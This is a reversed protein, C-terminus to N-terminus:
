LVAGLDHVLDVQVRDVLCVAGLGDTGLDLINLLELLTQLALHVLGMAQLLASQLV